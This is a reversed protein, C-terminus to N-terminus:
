SAPQSFSLCFALAQTRSLSAVGWGRATGAQCMSSVRETGRWPLPCNEDTKRRRARLVLWTEDLCGFLHEFCWAFRSAPCVSACVLSCCLPSAPLQGEANAPLGVPPKSSGGLQVFPCRLVALATIEVQQRTLSYIATTGQQPGPALGWTGAQELRTGSAAHRGLVRSESSWPVAVGM